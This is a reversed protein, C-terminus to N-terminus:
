PKAEAARNAMQYVRARLREASIQALRAQAEACVLLLDDDGDTQAKRAYGDITSSMRDLLSREPTM